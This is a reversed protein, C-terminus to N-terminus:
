NLDQLACVRISITTSIFKLYTLKTISLPCISKLNILPTDAISSFEKPLFINILEPYNKKEFFLEFSHM